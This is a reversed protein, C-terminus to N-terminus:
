TPRQSGARPPVFMQLETVYKRNIALELVAELGSGARAGLFDPCRLLPM